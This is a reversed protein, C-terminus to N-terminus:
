GPVMVGPAEIGIQEVVGFGSAWALLEAFGTPTTPVSRTGLRRGFQDLTVGVHQDAHTDVGVTVRVEGDQTASSTSWM